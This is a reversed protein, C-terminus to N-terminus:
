KEEKKQWRAFFLGRFLFILGGGLCLAFRGFFRRGAHGPDGTRCVSTTFVAFDALVGVVRFFLGGVVDGDVAEKDVFGLDGVRLKEFEGFGGSVLCLGFAAPAPFVEGLGRVFHEGGAGEYEGWRWRLDFDPLVVCVPVPPLESGSCTPTVRSPGVGGDGVLHIVGDDAHSVFVSGGVGFPSAFSEGGFGLPFESGTASEVAGDKSPSVFFCGIAFPEGVGELSFERM